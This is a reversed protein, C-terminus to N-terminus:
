TQQQKEGQESSKEGFVKTKKGVLFSCKWIGIGDLVQAFVLVSTAQKRFCESISINYNM